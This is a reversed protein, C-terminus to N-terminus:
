RKHSSHSYRSRAGNRWVGSSQLALPQHSQRAGPASSRRQHRDPEEDPDFNFPVFVCLAAFVTRARFGALAEQLLLEHNAYVLALTLLALVARGRRFALSVIAGLALVIYAGYAKLGALSAPLEPVIPVLFYAGALVCAPLLLSLLARGFSM